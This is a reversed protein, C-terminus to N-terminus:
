KVEASVNVMYEQYMQTYIFGDTVGNLLRFSYSKCETKVNLKILLGFLQWNQHPATFLDLWM